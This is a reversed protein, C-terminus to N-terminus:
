LVGCRLECQQFGIKGFIGSEISCQFQFNGIFNTTSDFIYCIPEATPPPSFYGRNRCGNVVRTNRNGGGRNGRIGDPNGFFIM